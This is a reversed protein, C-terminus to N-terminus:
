NSLGVAHGLFADTEVADLLFDALDFRTIEPGPPPADLVAEYTGLADDDTITSPAAAVWDLGSVQLAALDRRHEENVFQFPPRSTTFFVAFSLVGIM